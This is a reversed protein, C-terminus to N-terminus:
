GVKLEAWCEGELEIEIHPVAKAIADCCRQKERDPNKGKPGIDSERLTRNSVSILAHTRKNVRLQREMRKCRGIILQAVGPDKM